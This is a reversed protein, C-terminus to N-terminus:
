RRHARVYAVWDSLRRFDTFPNAAVRAYLMWIAPTSRVGDIGAVILSAYVTDRPAVELSAEVCTPAVRGDGGEGCDNVEWQIASTRVRGLEALWKEFPVHPYTSDLSAVSVQQAAAILAAEQALTRTATGSALLAVLAALYGVLKM